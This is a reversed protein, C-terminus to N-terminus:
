TRGTVGLVLIKFYSRDWGVVREILQLYLIAGKVDNDSVTLVTALCMYPMSCYM